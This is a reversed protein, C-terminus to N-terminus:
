GLGPNSQADVVLVLVMVEPVIAPYPPAMNSHVLWIGGSLAKAERQARAIDLFGAGEAVADKHVYLAVVTYGSCLFLAIKLVQEYCLGPMRQEAKATNGALPLRVPFEAPQAQPPSLVKGLKGGFDRPRTNM